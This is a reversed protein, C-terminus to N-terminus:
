FTGKMVLDEMGRDASTGHGVISVTTGKQVLPIRPAILVLTGFGGDVDIVGVLKGYPENSSTSPGLYVDLKTGDALDPTITDVTFKAFGQGTGTPLGPIKEIVYVATGSNRTSVGRLTTKWTISSQGVAPITLALAVLALLATSFLTRLKM